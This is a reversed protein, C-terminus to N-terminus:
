LLQKIVKQKKLESLSYGSLKSIIESFHKEYNWIFIRLSGMDLMKRMALQILTNRDLDPNSLRVDAYWTTWVACHGHDSLFGSEDTEMSQFFQMNKPCIDMPTLYKKVRGKFYERVKEYLGMPNFREKHLEMGHPEFHELEKTVKNFILINAHLSVHERPNSQKSALSVPVLIYQIKSNTMAKDWFQDFGEPVSLTWGGSAEYRWRFKVDSSHLEEWAIRPPLFIAANKFKTTLYMLSIITGTLSGLKVFADESPTDIHSKEKIDIHSYFKSKICRNYLSLVKGQPCVKTIGKILQGRRSTANICQLKEPDVIRSPRLCTNYTDYFEVLFRGFAWYLQDIKKTFEDASMGKMYEILESKIMHPQAIMSDIEFLVYMPYWVKISPDQGLKEKLYQVVRKSASIGVEIVKVEPDFQEMWPAFESKLRKNFLHSKFGRYHYRLIDYKYVRHTVKNYLLMVGHRPASKKENPNTSPSTPVCATKDKFIFHFAMFNTKLADFREKFSSLQPEQIMHIARTPKEYSDCKYMFTKSEDTRKWFLTPLASTVQTSYKTLVYDTLLPRPECSELLSM